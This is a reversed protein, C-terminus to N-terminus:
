QRLPSSNTPRYSSSSAFCKAVAKQLFQPDENDQSPFLPLATTTGAPESSPSGSIRGKCFAKRPERATHYVSGFGQGLILFQGQLRPIRRGNQLSGTPPCCWSLVM